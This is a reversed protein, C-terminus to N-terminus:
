RDRPSPSTYLLCGFSLDDGDACDACDVGLDGLAQGAALSDDQGVGVLGYGGVGDCAPDGPDGATHGARRAHETAAGPATPSSRTASAGSQFFNLGGPRLDLVVRTTTRGSGRANASVAGSTLGFVETRDRICM